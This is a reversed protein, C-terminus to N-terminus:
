AAVGLAKAFLFECSFQKIDENKGSNASPKMM